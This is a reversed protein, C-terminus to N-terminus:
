WLLYTKKYLLFIGLLLALNLLQLVLQLRCKDGVLIQLLEVLLLHDSNLVLVLVDLLLEAMDLRLQLMNFLLVLVNLLLLLV